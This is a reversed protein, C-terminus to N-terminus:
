QIPNPTNYIKIIRKLLNIEKLTAERHKVHRNSYSNVDVLFDASTKEFLTDYYLVKKYRRNVDQIWSFNADNLVIYYKGCQVNEIDSCFNAKIKNNKEILKALMRCYKYYEENIM